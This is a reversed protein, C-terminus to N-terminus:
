GEDRPKNASILTQDELWEDRHWTSLWRTRGEALWNDDIDARDAWMGYCQEILTLKDTPIVKQDRM